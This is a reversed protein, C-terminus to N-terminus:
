RISRTTCIYKACRDCDFESAFRSSYAESRITWFLVVESSMIRTMLNSQEKTSRNSASSVIVSAMRDAYMMQATSITHAFLM